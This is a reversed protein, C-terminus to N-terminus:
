YFLKIATAGSVVIAVAVGMGLAILWNKHQRVDAAVNDVFNKLVQLPTLGDPSSESNNYPASTTNGPHSDDLGDSEVVRFRCSKQGPESEIKKQLKWSHAAHLTRTEGVKMNGLKSKLESASATNFDFGSEVYHKGDKKYDSKVGSMAVAGSDVDEWGDESAKTRAM